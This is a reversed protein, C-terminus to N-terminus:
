KSKLEELIHELREILPPVDDEVTNWLEEKRVKRYAHAVIDRMGAIGEWDMEPYQIRVDESVNKAAEGIIEVEREVAAKVMESDEFEDFDIEHTFEEILKAAKLMDKLREEDESM